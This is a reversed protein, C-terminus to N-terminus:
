AADTARLLALTEAARDDEARIPRAGLVFLLVVILLVLRRM